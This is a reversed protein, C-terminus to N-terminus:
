YPINGDNDAGGGDGENGSPAGDEVGQGKDALVEAHAEGLAHALALFDRSDISSTEQWEDNKDKYVSAIKASYLSGYEGENKWVSVKVQGSRIRFLPPSAKPKEPEARKAPAATGRRPRQAM